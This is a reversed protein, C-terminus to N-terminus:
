HEHDHEGEGHEHGDEGDHGDGEAKHVGKKVVLKMGCTPCKEGKDMQAYHVTGMDCFWAGEPLQDKKVPPDFKTGAAAVEVPGDAPAEKTDSNPEEGAPETAEPQPAATEGTTEAPKDCAAFLLAAVCILRRIM